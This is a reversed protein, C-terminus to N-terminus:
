WRMSALINQVQPLVVSLRNVIMATMSVMNLFKGLEQGQNFRALKEAAWSSRNSESPRKPCAVVPLQSGAQELHGTSETRCFHEQFGCLNKQRRFVLDEIVEAGAAHTADIEAFVQNKMPEDRDLHQSGSCCGFLPSRM